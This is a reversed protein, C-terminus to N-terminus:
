KAHALLDRAVEFADNFDVHIPHDAALLNQLLKQQTKYKLQGIVLAGFGAIQNSMQAGVVPTGDSMVEVGAAGSPAVANVDAIIKLTHSEAFYATELVRVGAVAACIAITAQNLLQTKAADTTGDLVQLKVGYKEHITDTYAQMQAVNKHAALQVNANLSAAILAATTGVTGSAGFIAITQQAFTQNNRILHADIKAMMAAATTFAGSPDTMTSMEFPTFMGLVAAKQMDLAMHIDRGGFFLAERKVGNPSRSFMADQTLAIVDEQLVNTYPMIKDFGADYAMNVDFPSVNKATTILHLISVKQM